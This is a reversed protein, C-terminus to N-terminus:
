KKAFALIGALVLAAVVIAAFALNSGGTSEPIQLMPINTLPPLPTLSPFLTPTPGNTLTPFPSATQTPEPPPITATPMDTRIVLVNGPYIPQSEALGNLRRIDAIKVGYTIAILWLTEGGQVKHILRGDAGPTNPYITSVLPPAYFPDTATPGPTGGPLTAVPTNTLYPVNSNKPRACDIVYYVVGDVVSVGAGIETLNPSLMTNQHPADGMWASVAEAASMDTGAIINESRIGGLSIDGALPYGAALLRDTYSIGGPGYHSVNGTSAMFEAQAQATGMLISNVSYPSLGYSARLANVAAVLADPSDGAQLPSAAPKVAPQALASQTNITFFMLAILIRTIKWM